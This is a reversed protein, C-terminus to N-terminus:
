CDIHYEIFLFNFLIEFKLFIDVVTKFATLTNINRHKPTKALKFNM